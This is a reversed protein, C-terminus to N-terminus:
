FLCDTLDDTLSTPHLIYHNFVAYGKVNLGCDALGDVTMGLDDFIAELQENNYSHVTVDNFMDRQAEVTSTYEGLQVNWQLQGVILQQLLVLIEEKFADLEKTLTKRMNDLEKSVSLDLSEIQELLYDSYAHLKVLEHCMQKIRQEASYVDWYFSPLTPTFNTFARYPILTNLM